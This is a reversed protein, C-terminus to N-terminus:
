CCTLMIDFQPTCTMGINRRLRSAPSPDQVFLAHLLIFLTRFTRVWHRSFWSGSNISFSRSITTLCNWLASRAKIPLPSNWKRGDHTRCPSLAKTQLRCRWRGSITVQRHVVSMLGFLFDILPLPSSRLLRCSLLSVSVSLSVSQYTSCQIVNLM